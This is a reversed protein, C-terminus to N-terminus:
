KKHREVRHAPSTSRWPSRRVEKLRFKFSYTFVILQLLFLHPNVMTSNSTTNAMM